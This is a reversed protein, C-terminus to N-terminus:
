EKLVWPSLYGKSELADALDIAEEKSLPPGIYIRHWYGMGKALEVHISFADLGEDILRAVLKDAPAKERFSGVSVYYSIMPSTPERGPPLRQGPVPANEMKAPGTGDPSTEVLSIKLEADEGTMDSASEAMINTPAEGEEVRIAEVTETGREGSEPPIMVPADNAPAEEAQVALNATEITEVVATAADGVANDGEFAADPQEVLVPSGEMPRPPIQMRVRRMSQGRESFKLFGIVGAAILVLVALVVFVAVRGSEIGSSLDREKADLCHMM